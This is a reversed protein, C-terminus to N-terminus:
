IGADSLDKLVQHIIPKELVRKALGVSIITLVIGVGGACLFGLALNNFYTGFAFGVAMLLLLMSILGFLFSICIATIRTLVRTSRRAIRLKLLEKENETYLKIAAKGEIFDDKLM